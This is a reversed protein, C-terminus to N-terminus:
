PVSSGRVSTDEGGRNLYTDLRPELLQGDEIEISITYSGFYWEDWSSAAGGTFTEISVIGLADESIWAGGDDFGLEPLAEDAGVKRVLGGGSVVFALCPPPRQQCSSVNIMVPAAAVRAGQEDVLDVEGGMQVRLFDPGRWCATRSRSRVRASLETSHGSDWVLQFQHGDVADLLDVPLPVSALAPDPPRESLPLQWRFGDGACHFFGFQRPGIVHGALEGDPDIRAVLVYGDGLEIESNNLAGKLPVSTGSAHQDLFWLWASRTANLRGDASRAKVQVPVWASAPCEPYSRVAGEARRVELTLETSESPDQFGHDYPEKDVWFMPVRYTRMLEAGLAATEPGLDVPEAHEYCWGGAHEEGTQGGVCGAWLLGTVAFWLYRTGLM